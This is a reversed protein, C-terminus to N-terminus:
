ANLKIRELEEKFLRAREEGLIYGYSQSNSHITSGLSGKEKVLKAVEAESLSTRSLMRWGKIAPGSAALSCALVNLIKESDLIEDYTLDDLLAKSKKLDLATYDKIVLNTEKEIGLLIEKMRVKLILGETGLELIYKRLDESMKQILKGKQIVSLAQHLSPYNRLELRNLRNVYEDFLERQKELMQVYTSAKRLLEETNRVHYKINKYFLHIENKRESIAIVLTGTQKATREAAKHRTGTEHTKMKSDPTLLVNAYNIRKMDKSLIIAGDMKVLEALRQPTFRCNVRFGGDLIQLLEENEVVILAGKGVKLASDLAARLNTGPSVVKLISYFEEESVKGASGNSQNPTITVQVEKKEVM